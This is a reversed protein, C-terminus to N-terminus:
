KRLYRPRFWGTYFPELRSILRDYMVFMLNFGAFFFPVGYEAFFGSDEVAESVGAFYTSAFYFLTMAANFLALKVAVRLWRRGIANIRAAAVPYYGFFAIFLIKVDIEPVIFASLLSVSIYVLLATKAGNEIRVVLLMTGAFMPAAVGALPIVASMFMFLLCLASFVGGIAVSSSKKPM